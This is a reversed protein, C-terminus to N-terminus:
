GILDTLRSLYFLCEPITHFLLFFMEYSADVESPSHLACSQKVYSIGRQVCAALVDVWTKLSLPTDVPPRPGEGGASLHM